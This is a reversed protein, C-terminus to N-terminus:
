VGDVMYELYAEELKRQFAESLEPPYPRTSIVTFGAAEFEIKIHDKYGPDNKIISDQGTFRRPKDWNEPKLIQTRWRRWFEDQKRLREKEEAMPTGGGAVRLRGDSDISISGETNM